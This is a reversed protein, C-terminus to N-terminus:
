TPLALLQSLLQSLHRLYAVPPSTAVLSNLKRACRQSDVFLGTSVKAAVSITLFAPWVAAILGRPKAEEYRRRKGFVTPFNISSSHKKKKQEGFPTRFFRKSVVLEFPRM